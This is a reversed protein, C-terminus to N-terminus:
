TGGELDIAERLQRADLVLGEKHLRGCASIALKRSTAQAYTLWENDVIERTIQDILSTLISCVWSDLDQLVGRIAELQKAVPRGAKHHSVLIPLQCAAHAWCPRLSALSQLLHGFLSEVVSQRIPPTFPGTVESPIADQHRYQEYLHSGPLLHLRSTATRYNLLKHEALSSAFRRVDSLTAGPHFLIAGVAVEIQHERLQAITRWIDGAVPPRHWERLTGLDDSEVGVFAWALGASALAAIAKPSLAHPRLQAGFGIRLGHRAVTDAFALAREEAHRAPGLFDDDVFNFAVVGYNRNLEVLEQIISEPSRGRWSWGFPRLVNPTCCYTCKGTCGRSGQVNAAGCRAIVAQIMDRAPWPLGDLNEVWEFQSSAVYRENQRWALSPVCELPENNELVELLRLLPREGEYRVFLMNEPLMWAARQPETSIFGGGAVFTVHSGALERVRMMLLRGSEVDADSMLSLGVIQPRYAVITRAIDDELRPFLMADQLLVEHGAGRLVAALLEIGLPEQIEPDYTPCRSLPRVLAVRM